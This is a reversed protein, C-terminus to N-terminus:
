NWVLQLDNLGFIQGGHFSPPQQPDIRFPPLRQLLTEYLIQLEVRALHSGLCRHPGANFAIHTKAERQLNFQEPAEFASADLNASPLMLRVREGSKMTVGHFETDKGLYRIPAVFSFRRLLEEVAEAILEPQDRLEAQLAADSALHKVGYGMANMVTDLGAIFLLLSYNEVEEQSIPQDDIQLSWLMSIIDDRPEPRRAEIVDRMGEVIRNVHALAEPDGERLTMQKKVLARYEAMRELPLGMMKLFVKVPMPEAMESMFECHGRDIFQDVLENALSRIDTKMTNITKPSFVSQIPVRYKGHLPPDLNIPFPQAIRPTGPPMEDLFKQILEQPLLESSFTEVDRAADFNAQHSVFVWHGGNHPTWFIPPAKALLELLRQHPDRLLAPDSMMDFDYVVTEPVHAPREAAAATAITDTM